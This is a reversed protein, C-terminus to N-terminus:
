LARATAVFIKVKNRGSGKKEEKTTCKEFVEEFNKHSIATRTSQAQNRTNTQHTWPAGDYYFGTGETWFDKRTSPTKCKLCFM